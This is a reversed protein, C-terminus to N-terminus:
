TPILLPILGAIYMYVYYEPVNTYGSNCHFLLLYVYGSHTKTAKM